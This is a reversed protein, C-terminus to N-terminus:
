QNHKEPKFITIPIYASSVLIRLVIYEKNILTGPGQVICKTYRGERFVPSSITDFAFHFDEEKRGTAYERVPRIWTHGTVQKRNICNLVSDIDLVSGTM